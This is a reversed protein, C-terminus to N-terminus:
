ETFNKLYEIVVKNVEIKEKIENLHSKHAPSSLHLYKEDLSNKDFLDKIKPNIEAFGHEANKQMVNQLIRRKTAVEFREDEFFELDRSYSTNESELEERWEKYVQDETLM